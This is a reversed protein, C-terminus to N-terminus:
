PRECAVLEIGGVFEEENDCVVEAWATVAKFGKTSAEGVKRRTDNVTTPLRKSLFKVEYIAKM